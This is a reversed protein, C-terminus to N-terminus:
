NDINYLIENLVQNRNERKKKKKFFKKTKDYYEKIVTIPLLIPLAIIDLVFLGVLHNKIYYLKKITKNDKYKDPCYFFGFKDVGTIKKETIIDYISISCDYIYKIGFIGYYGGIVILTIM